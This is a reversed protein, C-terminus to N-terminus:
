QKRQAVHCRQKERRGSRLGRILCVPSHIRGRGPTSVVITFPENVKAGQVSQLDGAGPEPSAVYM